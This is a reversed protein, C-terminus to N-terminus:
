TRAESCTLYLIQYRESLSKLFAMGKEVKEDDLNTFPDDLVLFPKETTFMAEALATRLCIGALDRYGRSLSATERQRGKESFTLHTDADLHFASAKEGTMTEYFAAFSSLLPDAYKEVPNYATILKMKEAPAVAAQEAEELKDQYIKEIEAITFSSGCYDCQLKGSAGDYRLPGTCSPCQYNTIQSPM